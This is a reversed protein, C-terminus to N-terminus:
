GEQDMFYECKVYINHQVTFTWSWPWFTLSSIMRCSWVIHVSFFNITWNQFLCCQWISPFIETVASVLIRVAACPGEVLWKSGVSDPTICLKYWGQGSVCTLSVLLSCLPANAFDSIGHLMILYKICRTQTNHKNPRADDQYHCLYLGVQHCRSKYKM